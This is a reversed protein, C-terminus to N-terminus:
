IVEDVSVEGRSNTVFIELYEMLGYAISDHMLVYDQQEIAEIMDQLIEILRENLHFWVMDDEKLRNLEMFWMAFEQIQGFCERVPRLDKRKQYDLFDENIEQLRNYLKLLNEEM